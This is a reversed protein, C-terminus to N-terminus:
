FIARYNKQYLQCFKVKLIPTRFCSFSRYNRCVRSEHAKTFGCLTYILKEIIQIQTANRWCSYLWNSLLYVLLDKPTNLTCHKIIINGTVIATSM